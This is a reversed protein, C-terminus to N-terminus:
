KRLDDLKREYEVRDIEGRAYRRKLEEEPTDKESLSGEPPNERQVNRILIWVLALLVLGGGIWGFWMWGGMHGGNWWM